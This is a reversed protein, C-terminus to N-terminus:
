STLTIKHYQYQESSVVQKKKISDNKNTLNYRNPPKLHGTIISIGYIQMNLINIYKQKVYAKTGNM